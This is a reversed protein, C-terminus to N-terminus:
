PVAVCARVLDAVEDALARVTNAEDGDYAYSCAEIGSPLDVFLNAASKSVVKADAWGEAAIRLAKKLREASQQDVGRGQRLSTLLEMAVSQLEMEIRDVTYRQVWLIADAPVSGEIVIESPRGLSTKRPSAM